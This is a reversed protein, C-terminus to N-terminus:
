ITQRNFHIWQTAPAQDFSPEALIFVAESCNQQWAYSRLFARRMCAWTEQTYTEQWHTFICVNTSLVYMYTRKSTETFIYIYVTDLELEPPIRCPLVTFDLSKGIQDCCNVAQTQVFFDGFQLGQDQQFLVESTTIFSLWSMHAPRCM